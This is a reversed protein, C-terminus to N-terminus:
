IFYSETYKINSLIIKISLTWSVQQQFHTYSHTFIEIFTVFFNPPKYPAEKLQKTQQTHTFVWYKKDIFLVLLSHFKLRLYFVCNLGGHFLLLITHVSPHLKSSNLIDTCHRSWHVKFVSRGFIYRSINMCGGVFLPSLICIQKFQEIAVSICGFIGYLWAAM